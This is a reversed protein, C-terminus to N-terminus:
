GCGPCPSSYTAMTERATLNQIDKHTTYQSCQLVRTSLCVHLKDEDHNYFNSLMHLCVIVYQRLFSNWTPIKMLITLKYLPLFQHKVVVGVCKAWSLCLSMYIYKHGGKCHSESHGTLPISPVNFYEHLYLFCQFVHLKDEDHNYFNSLMHLCVIVYQHLFSNWTPIKMFITLKYLPLFQHKIIVGVCKAWTVSM